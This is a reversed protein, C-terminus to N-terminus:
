LRTRHGVGADIEDQEVKSAHDNLKPIYGGKLFYCLRDAVLLM